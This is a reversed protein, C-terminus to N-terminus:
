AVIGLAGSLGDYRAAMISMVIGALASLAIVVIGLWMMVKAYTDLFGYYWPEPLEDAAYTEVRRPESQQESDPGRVSPRYTQWSASEPEAPQEESAGGSPQFTADCEACQLVMDIEHLEFPIKRGCNPCATTPM